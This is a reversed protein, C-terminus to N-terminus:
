NNACTCKTDLSMYYALIPPIIFLFGFALSYGFTDERISALFAGPLMGVTGLVLGIVFFAGSFHTHPATSVKTKEEINM